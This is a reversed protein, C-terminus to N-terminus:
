HKSLKLRYTLNDVNELIKFSDTYQQNLKSDLIETFSIDYDRHLRILAYEDAKMFLSQHKRDYYHKSTMQAFAIVDAIEFRTRTVASFSADALPKRSDVISLEKLEDALDIVFSQRLVNLSQIFTFDYFVENLTKETITSHSNNFHRQM